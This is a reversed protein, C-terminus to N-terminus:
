GSVPRGSLSTFTVARAGLTAPPPGVPHLNPAFQQGGLWWAAGLAAILAALLVAAIWHVASRRVGTPPPASADEDRPM